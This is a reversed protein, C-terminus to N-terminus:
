LSLLLINVCLLNLHLVTCSHLLYAIRVRIAWSFGLNRRLGFSEGTWTLFWWLSFFHLSLYIKYDFSKDCRIELQFEVSSFRGWSTKRYYRRALPRYMWSPSPSDISTPRTWRLVFPRWWYLSPRCRAFGSRFLFEIELNAPPWRSPCSPPTGLPCRLSRPGWGLLRATRRTLTRGKGPLPWWGSSPFSLYVLVPASTSPTLRELPIPSVVIWTGWSRCCESGIDDEYRWYSGSDVVVSLCSLDKRLLGALYPPSPPLSPCVSRSLDRSPM